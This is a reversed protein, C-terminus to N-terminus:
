FLYKIIDIHGINIHNLYNYVIYIKHMLIYNKYYLEFDNIFEIVLNTKKIKKLLNLLIPNNNNIFSLNKLIFIDITDNKYNYPIKKYYKLDLKNFFKFYYNKIKINEIKKTNVYNFNLYNTIKKRLYEYKYLFKSYHIFYKNYSVFVNPFFNINKKYNTFYLKKYIITCDSNKKEIIKVDNINKNIYSIDDFYNNNHIIIKNKM